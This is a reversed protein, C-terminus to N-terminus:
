VIVEEADIIIWHVEKGLEKAKWATWCGGSKVHPHDKMEEHKLCHYDKYKDGTFDKPWNRVVINYLVDCTQAMDLNRQKFGYEADWVNQKPKFPVFTFGLYDAIEHAWIDVGGMPCEGSLIFDEEEYGDFLYKQIITHIAGKAMGETLACFKDQAHGVIAIKM